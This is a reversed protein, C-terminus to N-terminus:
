PHSKKQHEPHERARVEGRTDEPKSEEPENVHERSYRSPYRSNGPERNAQYYEPTNYRGRGRATREGPEAYKNHDNREGSDM